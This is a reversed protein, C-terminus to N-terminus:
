FRALIAHVIDLECSVLTPAENTADFQEDVERINTDKKEEKELNAISSRTRQYARQPRFDLNVSSRDFTKGTPAPLSGRIWVKLTNCVSKTPLPARARTVLTPSSSPSILKQRFQRKAADRQAVNRRSSKQRENMLRLFLM